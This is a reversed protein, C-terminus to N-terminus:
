GHALPELRAEACCTPHVCPRDFLNLGQEAVDPCGGPHAQVLQLPGALLIPPDLILPAIPFDQSLHEAARATMIGVM